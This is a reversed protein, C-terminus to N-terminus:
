RSWAPWRPAGSARSCCARTPCRRSRSGRVDAGADALLAAAREVAAIGDEDVPADFGPRRLVGVTCAPSATRSATAGTAASRRAPLVSRAPRLAGHRLVDAGRRAGHPDDPRRLVRRAFASAPWQPIRGYTPKLGVLGCWAAPIRVSGGADTGIHLPGFAPRARRAPAPPRAARAHLAPEVPQAHHRAAPLRRAIELRVRHHHDQRRDGRRRSEPRRRM